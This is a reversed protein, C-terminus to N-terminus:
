KVAITVGDVSTTDGIKVHVPVANGPQVNAPITANIQLLGPINGPAAGGYVVTAPLGGIDVSVPAVPKPVVDVAPRGDVGPPNTIGEGTGWLVIISNREAPASASNRTVNDQNFAAAQGKGTFDSTFLAPATAIVPVELPDSRVELYEVQVHTTTNIAGFYPVV